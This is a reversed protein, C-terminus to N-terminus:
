RPHRPIVSGEAHFPEHFSGGDPAYRVRMGLCGVPGMSRSGLPDYRTGEPAPAGSLVLYLVGGDRHLTSKDRV